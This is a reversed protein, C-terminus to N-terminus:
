EILVSDDKSLNKIMLGTLYGRVIKAEYNADAMATHKVGTFKYLRGPDIDDTMIKLGAAATRVSNHNRYKFPWDYGFDKLLSQLIVLDFEPGNGWIRCEEFDKGSLALVFDELDSDPSFERKAEESQKRWWELTKQCVHRDALIQDALNSLKFGIVDIKRSGM